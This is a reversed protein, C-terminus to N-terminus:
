DLYPWGQWFIYFYGFHVSHCQYNKKSHYYGLIFVETWGYQFNSIM